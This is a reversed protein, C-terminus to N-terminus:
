GSEVSVGPEAKIRDHNMVCSLYQYKFSSSHFIFFFFMFTVEHLLENSDTM